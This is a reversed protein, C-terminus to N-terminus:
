LQPSAARMGATGMSINRCASIHLVGSLLTAQWGCVKFRPGRLQSRSTGRARRGPQRACPGALAALRGRRRCAQIDSGSQWHCVDSPVISVGCVRALCQCAQLVRPVQVVLKCHQSGHVLPPLMDPFGSPQVPQDYAARELLRSEDGAQLAAAAADTPRPERWSATTPAPCRAILSSSSSRWELAKWPKGRRAIGSLM